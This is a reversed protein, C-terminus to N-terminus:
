SIQLKTEARGLQSLLTWQQLGQPYSMEGAREHCGRGIHGRLLTHMKGSAYMSGAKGKFGRAPHGHWM